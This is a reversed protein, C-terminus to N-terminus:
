AQRGGSVPGRCIISIETHYRQGSPCGLVSWESWSSSLDESSSVRPMRFPNEIKASAKAGSGSACFLGVPDCPFERGGGDEM